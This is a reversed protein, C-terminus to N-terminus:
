TLFGEKLTTLPQPYKGGLSFLVSVFSIEITNGIFDSGKGAIFDCRALKRSTISIQM